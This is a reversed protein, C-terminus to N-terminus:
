LYKQATQNKFYCRLRFLCLEDPKSQSNTKYNSNIYWYYYFFRKRDM